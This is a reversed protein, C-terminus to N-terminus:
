QTYEVRGRRHLEAHEPGVAAYHLGASVSHTNSILGDATQLVYTYSGHLM